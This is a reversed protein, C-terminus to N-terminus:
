IRGVAVSPTAEDTQRHTQINTMNPPSVQTPGLFWTNSPSPTCGRTCPAVNPPQGAWQFARPTEPTLQVLVALSISISNPAPEHQDM